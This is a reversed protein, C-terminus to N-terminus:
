ARQRQKEMEVEFGELDVTLGKGRAIEATLESPFGYTDYLRFVEEGAIYSRGQSAAEDVAKEVLNIGADLTSIFKEEEMKVVEEILNQNTVLEPYIHGMKAIAVEAIESLLPKEIGLKRGFFCARRLIRRLVYGRGENSPSVGAAILFAIGRSHEAMIRVARDAAKDKG